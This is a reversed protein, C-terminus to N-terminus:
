ETPPNSKNHGAFHDILLIAAIVAAVVFAAGLVTIRMGKNEM